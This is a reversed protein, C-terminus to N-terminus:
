RATRAPRGIPGFMFAVMAAASAIAGAWFVAPAGSASLLVGALLPGSTQGLRAFGVWTAVVAGRHEPPAASVAVEQLNPILAGEGIGYALSGLVVVALVVAITSTIFVTMFKPMPPIPPLDAM